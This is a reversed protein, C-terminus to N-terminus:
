VRDHDNSETITPPMLSEIVNLELHDKSFDILQNKSEAQSKNLISASLSAYQDRHKLIIEKFSESDRLITYPEALLVGLDHNNDTNLSDLMYCDQSYYFSKFLEDILGVVDEEIATSSKVREAMLADAKAKEKVRAEFDEESLVDELVSDELTEIHHAIDSFSLTSLDNIKSPTTRKTNHKKGPDVITLGLDNIIIYQQSKSLSTTTNILHSTKDWLLDADIRSEIKSSESDVLEILKANKEIIVKYFSRKRERQEKVKFIFENINDCVGRLREESDIDRVILSMFDCIRAAQYSVITLRSEDSSRRDSNKSQNSFIRKLGSIERKTKRYFNLSEAQTWKSDPKKCKDLQSEVINLFSGAQDFLPAFDDYLVTFPDFENLIKTISQEFRNIDDDVVLMDINWDEIHIDPNTSCLKEISDFKGPQATLLYKNTFNLLPNDVEAKTIAAQAGLLYKRAKADLKERPSNFNVQFLRGFFSNVKDRDFILSDKSDTTKSISLIPSLINREVDALILDKRLLNQFTSDLLVYFDENHGGLASGAEREFSEVKTKPKIFYFIDSLYKPRTSKISRRRLFDKIRKRKISFGNRANFEGEAISAENSEAFCDLLFSSLFESQHALLIELRLTPIYTSSIVPAM